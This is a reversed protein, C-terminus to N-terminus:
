NRRLCRRPFCNAEQSSDDEMTNTKQQGQLTTVCAITLLSSVISTWKSIM